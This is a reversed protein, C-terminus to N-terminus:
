CVRERRDGRTENGCPPQKIENRCHSFTEPSGRLDKTGPSTNQVGKAIFQAATLSHSDGLQHLVGIIGIGRPYQHAELFWQFDALAPDLDHIVAM